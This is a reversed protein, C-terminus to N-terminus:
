QPDPAKEALQSALQQIAARVGQGHDDVTSEAVGIDDAFQSAETGSGFPLGSPQRVATLHRSFAESSDPTFPHQKM